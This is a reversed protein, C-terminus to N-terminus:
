RQAQRAQHLHFEHQQHHQEHTPLQAADNGQNARNLRPTPPRSSSSSCITSNNTIFDCCDNPKSITTQSTTMKVVNKKTTPGSKVAKVWPLNVYDPEDGDNDNVRDRRTPTKVMPVLSKSGCCPCRCKCREGRSAM